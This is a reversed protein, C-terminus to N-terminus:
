FVLEQSTDWSVGEDQPPRKGGFLGAQPTELARRLWNRFRADWDICREGKAAAWDRMRQAESDVWQQSKGGERSAQEYQAASPRWDPPLTTKVTRPKPSPKPTEPKSITRSSEQPQEQVQSQSQSQSQLQSRLGESSDQLPSRLPKSPADWWPEPLCLTQAHEEWFEQLMRADSCERLLFEINKVRKDASKLCEGKALGLQWAAMSRVFVTESAESYVLFSKSDGEFPRGLAKLAGEVESMTLGTEHSITVLPLYFMGVMNATPASMLYIALLQAAKNGRMARGTGRTWFTPSVKGYARM